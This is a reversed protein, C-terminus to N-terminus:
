WAARPLTRLGPAPGARARSRHRERGASRSRAPRAVLRDVQGRVVPDDDRAGVAGALQAPARGARKRPQRRDAPRGGLREAAGVDDGGDRGLLAQERRHRPEGPVRGRRPHRLRGPSRGRRARRLRARGRGCAAVRGPAGSGPSRTVRADAEAALARASGEVSACERRRSRVRSSARPASPRSRRRRRPPARVVEVPENGGHRAAAAIAASRRRSLRLDTGGKTM